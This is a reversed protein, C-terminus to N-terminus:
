ALLRPPAASDVLGWKGGDGGGGALLPRHAGGGGASQAGAAMAAAKEAGRAERLPQWVVVASAVAVAACVSAVYALLTADHALTYPFFLVCVGRLAVGLCLLGPLAAGLGWAARRRLRANLAERGLRRAARALWLSYLLAFLASVLTSFVPFACAACDAPSVPPYPLGATAGGGGVGDGGVGIGWGAAQEGALVVGTCASSVPVSAAFFRAMASEGYRLQTIVRSFLAAVAQAAAVPLTLGAALSVVLVNPGSLWPRSSSGAGSAGPPRKHPRLPRHQHHHQQQQQEPRKFTRPGVSEVDASSSLWAAVAVPSSAAGRGGGGGGSGGHLPKGGLLRHGDAGRRRAAAAAGRRARATTAGAQQQVDAEGGGSSTGAAAIGGSGAGAGGSSSRRGRRRGRQRRAKKGSGRSSSNNAGASLTPSM